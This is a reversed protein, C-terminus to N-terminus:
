RRGAYQQRADDHRRMAFPFEHKLGQELEEDSDAFQISCIGQDTAAILMRGLPSDACTYRITAAVAGRRYKGPEM